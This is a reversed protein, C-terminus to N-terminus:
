YRASGRRSRSNSTELNRVQELFRRANEGDRDSSAHNRAYVEIYKTALPANGDRPINASSVYKILIEIIGAVNFKPTSKVFSDLGEWNHTACLAKM